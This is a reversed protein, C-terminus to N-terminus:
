RYFYEKFVQKINILAHVFPQQLAHLNSARQMLINMRLIECLEETRGAQPAFM